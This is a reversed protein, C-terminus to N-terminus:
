WLRYIDLLPQLFSWTRYGDDDIHVNSAWLEKHFQGIISQIDIKMKHILESYKSREFHYVRELVPKGVRWTIYGEAHTVIIPDAATHGKFHFGQTLIPYTGGQELSHILQQVDVAYTPFEVLPFGDVELVSYIRKDWGGPITQEMVYFGDLDNFM